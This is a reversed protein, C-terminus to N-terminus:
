LDRLHDQALSLDLHHEHLMRLHAQRLRDPNLLRLLRLTTKVTHTAAIGGKSLLGVKSIWM